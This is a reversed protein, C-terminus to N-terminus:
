LALTRASVMGLLLAFTLGVLVFVPLLVMQISMPIRGRVLVRAGAIAVVSRGSLLDVGSRQVAIRAGTVLKRRNWHNRDQIAELAGRSAAIFRVEGIGFPAAWAVSSGPSEMVENRLIAALLVPKKASSLGSPQSPMTIDPSAPTAVARATAM